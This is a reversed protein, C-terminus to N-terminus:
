FPCPPGWWATFSAFSGSRQNKCPDCFSNYQILYHISVHIFLMYSCRTRTYTSSPNVHNIFEPNSVVFACPSQCLNIRPCIPNKYVVVQPYQFVANLAKSTCKTIVLIYLQTEVFHLVVTVQKKSGLAHHLSAEAAEDKEAEYGLGHIGVHDRVSGM